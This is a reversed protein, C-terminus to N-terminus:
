FMVTESDMYRRLYLIKCIKGTYIGKCQAYYQVHIYSEIQDNLRM